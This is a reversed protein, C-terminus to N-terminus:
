VEEDHSTESSDVAEGEVVEGRAERARAARMDRLFKPEMAEELAAVASPHWGKAIMAARREEVTEYRVVTKTESKQNVDLPVLRGYLSAFYGPHNRALWELYGLEGDKGWRYEYQGTLKGSPDLVPVKEMFGTNAAAERLLTKIDRTMLNPQGPKRGARKDGKQFKNQPNLNPM